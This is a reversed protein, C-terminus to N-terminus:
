SPTLFPVGYLKGTRPDYRVIMAKGGCAGPSPAATPIVLTTPASATRIVRSGDLVTVTLNPLVNADHPIWMPQNTGPAQGSPAYSYTRCRSAACVEIATVHDGAMVISRADLEASVGAQALDGCSSSAGGSCATCVALICM